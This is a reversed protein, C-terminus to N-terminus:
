RGMKLPDRAKDRRAYKVPFTTQARRPSIEKVHAEGARGPRAETVRLDAFTHHSPRVM